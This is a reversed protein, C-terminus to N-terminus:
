IMEKIYIILIFILLILPVITHMFTIDITYGVEACAVSFYTFSKKLGFMYNEPNLSPDIVVSFGIFNMVVLYYYRLLM